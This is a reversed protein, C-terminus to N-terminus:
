GSACVAVVDLRWGAGSEAYAIASGAWANGTATSATLAVPVLTGEPGVISAGGGVVQSGEPCEALVPGKAAAPGGDSSAQAFEFTTSSGGNEGGELALAVEAVAATEAAPVTSLTSEDIQQGGLSDDAVKGGGIAGPAINPGEVAGEALKETTISGDPIESDGLADESLKDSTVAGDAIADTGVAGEALKEATVAGTGLKGPGVAEPALKAGTVAEDEIADTGVTIQGVAAGDVAPASDDSALAAIGIVISALAIVLAIVGLVIPMRDREPEAGQGGPQQYQGYPDRGYQGPIPPQPMTPDHYPDGGPPPEYPPEGGPPRESHSDDVM